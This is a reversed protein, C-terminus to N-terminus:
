PMLLMRYSVDVHYRYRFHVRIPVGTSRLPLEAFMAAPVPPCPSALKIVNASFEDYIPQSSPRQFEIFALQGSKLIGFVVLLDEDRDECEGRKKSIKDCPWTMKSQLMRRRQELYDNYRPDQSDLAIPEGEIGGRGQGSGGAGGPGGRRLATLTNPASPAAPHLPQPLSAVQPQPAAPPVVAARDAAPRDASPPEAAKPREVKPAPVDGDNAKPIPASAVPPQPEPNATSDRSPRQSESPPTEVKAVAKPPPSPLMRPAPRAVAAKPMPREPTGPRGPPPSDDLKPLEVILPEGRKAHEKSPLRAQWLAAIVALHILVSVIVGASLRGRQWQRLFEM